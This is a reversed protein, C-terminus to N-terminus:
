RHLIQWAFRLIMVSVVILFLARVFRNGKLIALTTGTVSGLVNCIAMPIAYRYLINHTAALYTVSALNTAFLWRGDRSVALDHTAHNRADVTGVVQFSDGDIVTVSNSSENAVYVRSHAPEEAEKGQMETCGSLTALAAAVLALGTSRSIPMAHMPEEM